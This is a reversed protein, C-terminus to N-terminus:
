NQRIRNANHLVLNAQLRFHEDHDTFRLDRLLIREAETSTNASIYRLTREKNRQLERDSEVMRHYETEMIRNVHSTSVVAESIHVFQRMRIMMNHLVVCTNSIRITEYLEWRRNERRLIEFRSQLIGFLREVDKRISEQKFSYQKELPDTSKPLPLAFIPWHPYIGDGLLYLLHHPPKTEEIHYGDSVTIDFHESFIRQFLPSRALVNLDNNTGPRGSFWSWCYLDHDCWGECQVTASKSERSNLYQGKMTAPCNKWVYKMCDVSGICGPFGVDAFKQEISSLEAVTPLRNFFRGGYIELIDICFQRFYLRISEQSMYVADDLSDTSTGTSLIRLASLLKLDTPICKFGIGNTRQKWFETRHLLLDHKLAFYLVRPISFRRQFIYEPYTPNPAIYDKIWNSAGRRHNKSGQLRGAYGDMDDGCSSGFRNYCELISVMTTHQQKATMMVMGLKVRRNKCRKLIAAVASDDM